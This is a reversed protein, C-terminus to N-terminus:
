TTKVKKMKPLPLKTSLRAIEEAIEDTTMESGGRNERIRSTDQNRGIVAIAELLTRAAGARASENGDRNGAVDLLADLAVGRIYDPDRVSAPRKM